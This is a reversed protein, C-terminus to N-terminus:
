ACAHREGVTVDVRVRRGVHTCKGWKSAGIGRHFREVSMAERRSERRRLSHTGALQQVAGGRGIGRHFREVSMVARRAGHSQKARSSPCYTRAELSSSRWRRELAGISDNFQCRRAGRSENTCGTLALWRFSRGGGELAGNSERDSCQNCPPPTRILPPVTVNVLQLM